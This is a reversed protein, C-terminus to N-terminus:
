KDKLQLSPLSLLKEMIICNLKEGHGDRMANDIIEERIIKKQEELAQSLMDIGCTNCVSSFHKHECQQFNHPLYVPSNYGNGGEAGEIQQNRSNM